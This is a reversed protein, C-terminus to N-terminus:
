DASYGPYQEIVAGQIQLEFLPIPFAKRFGDTIGADSLRGFRVLDPFRHGEAYFEYRRENLLDTIFTNMTYGAGGVIDGLGARNRIVNLDPLGDNPDGSQMALAEARILYMEAIRLIYAPDTSNSRDDYKFFRPANRSYAILDGRLDAGPAGFIGDPGPYFYDVLSQEVLVENRRLLFNSFGSPDTSTFNLEFISEATGDIDFIDAYNGELAFNGNNIVETAYTEANVYDQMYLYMRALLGQAFARNALANDGDDPLDAVADLLDDEIQAYVQAVSNRPLFALDALDGGLSETLVPVGYQSSLDDHDGWHRLLDFYCLARIAKAQAIIYAKDEDAFADDQITPVLNIINNANEIAAYIAAWTDEVDANSAPIVQNDLQQWGIFFGNYTSVDTYQDGILPMNLGYYADVQVISYLGTLAVEASKQDVFLAERSVSQQPEQELVNCSTALLTGTLALAIYKKNIFKM